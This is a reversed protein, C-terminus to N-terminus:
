TDNRLRTWSERPSGEDGLTPLTAGESFFGIAILPDHAGTHREALAVTLRRTDQREAAARCAAVLVDTAIAPPTDRRMWDIITTTSSGADGTVQLAGMPVGDVTVPYRGDHPDGFVIDLGDDSLARAPLSRTAPVARAARKARIRRVTIRALDVAAHAPPLAARSRPLEQPAVSDIAKQLERRSEATNHLVYITHDTPTGAYDRLSRATQLYTFGLSTALALSGRNEVPQVALMASVQPFQEFTDLVDVASMWYTVAKSQPLGAVWTLTEAHGSRPDPGTVSQQGVVRPGSEDDVTLVRSILPNEANRATWWQEAWAATSHKEDWSVGPEHFADQLRQEYDLNTKRWSAGDSLRLSRLEVVHEAIRVRGAHSQTSM